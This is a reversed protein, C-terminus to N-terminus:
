ASTGTADVWGSGDYWIPQGLTTDFYFRGAYLAKTPRDATAGCQRLENLATTALDMWNFWDVNAREGGVVHLGAPATKM